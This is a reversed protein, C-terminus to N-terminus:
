ILIKYKNYFEPNIKKVVDSLKMHITEAWILLYGPYTLNKANLVYVGNHNYKLSKPEIFNYVNKSDIYEVSLIRNNFNFFLDMLSIEQNEKFIKVKIKRRILKELTVIKKGKITSLLKEEDNYSLILDGFNIFSEINLKEM